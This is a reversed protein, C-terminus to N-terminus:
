LLLMLLGLLCSSPLVTFFANVVVLLLWSGVALGRRMMDAMAALDRPSGGFHEDKRLLDLEEAFAEAVFGLCEDRKADVANGEPNEEQEGGAREHDSTKRPRKVGGCRAIIPPSAMAHQERHLLASHELHERQRSREHRIGASIKRAPTNLAPTIAAADNGAAASAAAAIEQRCSCYLNWYSVM